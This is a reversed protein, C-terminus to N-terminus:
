TLSCPFYKAYYQVCPFGGIFYIKSIMQENLTATLFGIGLIPDM